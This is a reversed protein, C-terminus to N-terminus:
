GETALFSEVCKALAKEIKPQKKAYWSAFYSKKAGMLERMVFWPNGISENYISAFNLNVGDHVLDLMQSSIDDRSYKVKMAIEFYPATVVRYAEAALAEMVAGSREKNGCTIPVCMLALADQVRTLYKEQNEDYKPYPIIGYDTDMDKLTSSAGALRAPYLLARSEKFAAQQKATYDGGEATYSLVQPTEYMFTYIKEVITGVKQEEMRLVPLDDDGRYIMKVDSGQLFGDVDNTATIACGYLDLDGLKNDGDLDASVMKAYDSMADITWKGDTVTQYIDPVGYDTMLKKNFYFVCSASLLTLTIDGTAFFLKGGITLDKRLTQVWWPQDLDIYPVEYLNLFIGEIGLIPIRASWGSVFDYIDDGAQVSKRLDNMSANYNEWTNAAYVDIVVNLREEVKQRRTYLADDIIDGTQEPAQFEKVCDTDGRAHITVTEGGFDLDAPLNDPTDERGTETEAIEQATDQAQTQGEQGGSPSTGARGGCAAFSSLSAAALLAAFLRKKMTQEGKNGCRMIGNIINYM